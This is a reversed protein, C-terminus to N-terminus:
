RAGGDLVGLRKLLYVFCLLVAIVMVSAAALLGLEGNQWYDFILISFLRTNVSYVMISGSLERVSLLTAYLFGGFLTPLVLPLVIRRMRRVWGAGSVSAAEELEADIQVLGASATRM